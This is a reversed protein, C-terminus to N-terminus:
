VLLRAKVLWGQQTYIFSVEDLKRIVGPLLVPKEMTHSIHFVHKSNHSITYIVYFHM